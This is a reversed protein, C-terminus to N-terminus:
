GFRVMSTYTVDNGLGKLRMMQHKCVRVAESTGERDVTVTSVVVGDEFRGGLLSM